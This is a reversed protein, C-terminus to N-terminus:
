PKLDPRVQRLLSQTEIEIVEKLRAKHMERLKDRPISRWAKPVKSTLHYLRCHPCRYIRLIPKKGYTKGILDILALRESGYAFKDPCPTGPKKYVM